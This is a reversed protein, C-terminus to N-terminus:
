RGFPVRGASSGRKEPVVVEARHEEDPFYDCVEAAESHEEFVTNELARRAADVAEIAVELPPEGGGTRLPRPEAQQPHPRAVIM